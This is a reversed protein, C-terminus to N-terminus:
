KQNLYHWDSAYCPNLNLAKSTKEESSERVSIEDGGLKRKREGGVFFIRISKECLLPLHESAETEGCMCNMLDSNKATLM